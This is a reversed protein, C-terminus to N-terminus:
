RPVPEGPIMIFTASKPSDAFGEGTVMEDGPCDPVVVTVTVGTAPKVPVTPRLTLPQGGPAVQVRVGGKTTTVPGEATVSVSVMVVVPAAPAGGESRRLPGGLKRKGTPSRQISAPDSARAMSRLADAIRRRGAAKNNAVASSTIPIQTAQPPPLPPPPLVGVGVGVGATLREAVLIAKAECFVPVVLAACGTVSVLVPFAERLMVLTPRAPVFEPSKEWVFVQPLLTKAPALQEILTVNVGVATPARLADTLMASLALLLGWVIVKLPM